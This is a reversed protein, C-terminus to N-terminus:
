EVPADITVADVTVAGRLTEFVPTDSRGVGIRTVADASLAVAFALTDADAWGSLRGHLLGAVLTDGACVTSEVGVAPATAALVDRGTLWVVGDAGRSIAVEAVGRGQLERGAAILDAADALDRGVCAALEAANPKILAPALALGATLAAGSADLWLPIGAELLPDLAAHLMAPTLGPPLSGAIVVADLPGSAQAAIVEALRAADSAEVAAGPANVDTVRGDAEALKANTRTEGPVRVFDDTVGWDAFAAGFVGANDAGLFGTVTVDHGQAALVRAVNNGKGAPSTRCTRARNVAGPVLRALGISLDLAPNPTIALVRAM